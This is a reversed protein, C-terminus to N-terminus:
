FIYGIGLSVDAGNYNRRAGIPTTFNSMANYKVGVGLKVYNSLLFDIGVGVQGGFTTASVSQQSGITSSSQSGIFVGIAGSAFPRVADDPAPNFAYYRMGLLVPVVASATSNVGSISVNSIAQASLFGVSLTVSSYERIWYSYLLNGQFGNTGAQSQIGGLSQTSSASAGGWFGINLELASRGKLSIDQAFSTTGLFAISAIVILIRSALKM